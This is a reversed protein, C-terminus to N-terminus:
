IIGFFRLIAVLIILPILVSVASLGIDIASSRVSEELETSARNLIDAGLERVEGYNQLCDIFNQNVQTLTAGTVDSAMIEILNKSDQQMICNKSIENVTSQDLNANMRNYLKSISESYGGTGPLGGKAEIDKVIKTMLDQSARSDRTEKIMAQLICLNKLINSQTSTLNAVKSDTIRLINEAVTRVICDQTIKNRISQDIVFDNYNIVETNSISTAAGM